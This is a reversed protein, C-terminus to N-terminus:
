TKEAFQVLDSAIHTQVNSSTSFRSLYLVVTLIDWFFVPLQTFSLSVPLLCIQSKIQFQLMRAPYLFHQTQHSEAIVFILSSRRHNPLSLSMPAAILVIQNAIRQRRPSLLTQLLYKHQHLHCHRWFRRVTLRSREIICSAIRTALIYRAQFFICLTTEIQGLVFEM